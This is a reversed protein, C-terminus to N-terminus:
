YGVEVIRAHAVWRINSAAAGTVSIRLTDNTNDADVVVSGAVGWTGGTGDALVTTTVAAILVTNGADNKIGGEVKWSASTGDSKRGVVLISFTWSTNNPVTARKNGATGSLFIEVNATADTTLGSWVLESTQADGAVSFKAAAHSVQGYKDTKAFYGGPISSAEGTAFNSGGGAVVSGAATAACSQGGSITATTATATNSNGGGVCSSAGTAQNSFGGAVTSNSGSAVNSQGGAVCDFAQSVTNNKGGGITSDDGAAANGEGGGVTSKAGAATNTTGGSVVANAGSATNNQGGGITSNAGSAVQTVAARIPQLDVAETGKANGGTEQLAGNDTLRMPSSQLPTPTTAGSADFRPLLNDTAGNPLLTQWELGTPQSSLATLIKGDSGAGLRVDSANPSNAGNDVILDGRTTTPSLDNLTSLSGTGDTGKRGGPSIKSAGPVVTTPAVNDPYGLNKLTLHTADPVATVQFTGANEVFIYQGVSAWGSEFMAVNVTGNVAPMVFGATTISFADIGDTGNTGNNGDAGAPGPVQTIPVSPCPDCCDRVTPFTASM